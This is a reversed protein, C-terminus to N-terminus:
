QWGGRSIKIGKMCRNVLKVVESAVTTIQRFIWRIVLIITYRRFIMIKSLFIIVHVPKM